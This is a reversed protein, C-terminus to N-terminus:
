DGRINLLAAEVTAMTIREGSEKVMNAVLDIEEDKAGASSIM